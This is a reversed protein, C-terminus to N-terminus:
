VLRGRNLAGGEPRHRGRTRPGPPGALSGKRVGSRGDRCDPGWLGSPLAATRVLPSSCTSPCIFARTSPCPPRLRGSPQHQAGRPLGRAVPSLGRGARGPTSLFPLGGWRGQAQGCPRWSGCSHSTSGTGPEADTEWAPGHPPVTGGAESGVQAAGVAAARSSGEPDLCSTLDSARPLACQLPVHGTKGAWLSLFPIRPM